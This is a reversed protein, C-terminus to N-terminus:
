RSSTREGAIREVAMALTQLQEQIGRLERLAVEEASIEESELEEEIEAIEPALFRQAFAGTLLAVFGIGIILVAVTVIEGGTTTPYINSGLTTMTTAAWYIGDWVSLHQGKEFGVFLAGGGIVTLLSLLLAYRLGELSFVERSLQALRLLRVLRLLRLVRLSQLGAPLLPPTFVVIIADLPHHRLWKRRDPVVWLMVVLEVFFAVWTVWNLIVAIDHLAGGVKSETLAVTPLTLAAAILMPTNLREAVRTSREDMGPGYRVPKPSQNAAM